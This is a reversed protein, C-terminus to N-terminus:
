EARVMPSRRSTSRSGTAPRRTHNLTALDHKGGCCARANDVGQADDEDIMQEPSLYRSDSPEHVTAAPAPPPSGPALDPRVFGPRPSLSRMSLTPSPTRLNAMMDRAKPGYRRGLVGAPSPPAHGHHEPMPPVSPVSPPSLTAKNSGRSSPRAHPRATDPSQPHGSRSSPSARMSSFSARGTSRHLAPRDPHSSNSASRPRALSSVSIPAAASAPLAQASRQPAENRGAPADTRSLLYLLSTMWTDHIDKSSATFKIQRSAAQITISKHYLGPPTPNYDEVVGVAEIGTSKAKSEAGNSTSPDRLGWYLTKTYPHIWVYRKHRKDSPGLRLAGRVYKFLYSGIMTSTVAPIAATDVNNKPAAPAPVVRSTEEDPLSSSLSEGGDSTEESASSSRRRRRYKSTSTIMATGAPGKDSQMSKRSRMTAHSRSGRLASASRSGPRPSSTSVRQLLDRPIPSLPRAPASQYIPPQSRQPVPGPPPPASPPPPVSLTPPKSMDPPKVSKASANSKTRPKPRGGGHVEELLASASFMLPEIEPFGFTGASHRTHTPRAHSGVVAVGRAAAVAAAVSATPSPPATTQDVSLTSHTDRHEHTRHPPITDPPPRTQPISTATARSPTPPSHLSAPGEDIADHFLDEDADDSTQLRRQMEVIRKELLQVQGQLAENAGQVEHLRTLLQASESRASEAAALADHTQTVEADRERLGSLSESCARRLQDVEKELAERSELAQQAQDQAEECRRKFTAVMTAAGTAEAIKNALAAGHRERQERLVAEHDEREKILSDSLVKVKDALHADFRHQAEALSRAHGENSALLARTHAEGIDVREADWQAEKRSLAAKHLEEQAALAGQLAQAHEASGTAQAAELTKADAAAREEAAQRVSELQVAHKEEQQVIFNRHEDALGEIEARYRDESEKRLESAARTAQQHEAALQSYADRHKKLEANHKSELEQQMAKAEQLERARVATTQSEKAVAQERCRALAADADRGAKQLLLAQKEASAQAEELQAALVTERERSQEQEAKLTALEQATLNVQKKHTEKLDIARQLADEHQTQQAAHQNKLSAINSEHETRLAQTQTEALTRVDMVRRSATETAEIVAAEHAAATEQARKQASAIQSELARAAEESREIARVHEENQKEIATAHSQVAAQAAALEAKLRALASTHEAAAQESRQRLSLLQSEHEERLRQTDAQSEEHSLELAQHYEERLERLAAETEQQRLQDHQLQDRQMQAIRARMEDATQKLAEVHAKHAADREELAQQLGAEGQAAERLAADADEAAKEARSLQRTLTEHETELRDREQQMMTNMRELRQAESSAAAKAEDMAVKLGILQRELDQIQAKHGAEAQRAHTEMAQVTRRQEQAAQDIHEQSAVLEERAKFLDSLTTSRLGRAETLDSQLRQVEQSKDTHSARADALDSKVVDLADQVEAHRSQFGALESQLTTLLTEAEEKDTNFGELESKHQTQLAELKATHARGVEALLTEEHDQRTRLAEHHATRAQELESEFQSQAQQAISILQAEKERAQHLLATTERAAAQISDREGALEEVQHELHEYQERLAGLREEAASCASLSEDLLDKYRQLEKDAKSLADAHRSELTQSHAAHAMQAETLARAHNADNERMVQEQLMHAAVKEQQAQALSAALEHQAHELLGRVRELEAELEGVQGDQPGLEEGLAVAAPTFSLQSAESRRRADYLAPNSDAESTSEPLYAGESFGSQVDAEYAHRDTSRSLVRPRRPLKTPSEDQVDTDSSESEEDPVAPHIGAGRLQSELRRRKEKERAMRRYVAAFRRTDDTGALPGIPEAAIPPTQTPPSFAISVDPTFPLSTDAEHETLLAPQPTRSRPAIQAKRAEAEARDNAEDAQNQAAVVDRKLGANARRLDQIMKDRSAQLSTLHEELAERATQEADAKSQTVTLDTRLRSFESTLKALDSRLGDADDLARQRQGETEYTEEKLM